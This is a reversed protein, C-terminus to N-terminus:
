FPMEKTKFLEIPNPDIYLKPRLQRQSYWQGNIWYRNPHQKKVQKLDYFKGNSEFPLKYLNNDEGIVFGEIGSIKWKSFM